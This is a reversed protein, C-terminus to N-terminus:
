KAAPIADIIIIIIFLSMVRAGGCSRYLGPASPWPLTSASWLAKELLLVFKWYFNENCFNNNAFFKIPFNKNSLTTSSRIRLTNTGCGELMSVCLRHALVAAKHIKLLETFLQNVVGVALFAVPSQGFGGGGRRGWFM